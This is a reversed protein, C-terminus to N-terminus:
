NVGKINEMSDNFIEEDLESGIYKRGSMMCSKVTTGLGSFPDYILSDKPFYIDILQLVLDTSYSAKLKSKIGDNNRAEIYNVYHKFFKQGTKENISSITKNTVFSKKFDKHALIFVNEVVRSLRTPSSQFPISNPKKWAIMDVLSLNTDNEVMNILKLPLIPNLHHYSMNYCIVGDSRLIRDFEVFENMRTTIYDEESLNDIDSYGNKYYNDKRKTTINYPPSTIIGNITGDSIRKMTDLNSENYIRNFM